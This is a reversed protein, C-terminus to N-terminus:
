GQIGAMSALGYGAPGSCNGNEVIEKSSGDRRLVRGLISHSQM